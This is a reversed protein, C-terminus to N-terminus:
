EVIQIYNLNFDYERGRERHLQLSTGEWKFVTHPFTRRFWRVEEELAGFEWCVYNCSTINLKQLAQKRQALIRFLKQTFITSGQLSLSQLAPLSAVATISGESIHDCHHLQLVRLHPVQQLASLVDGTVSCSSLDLYTVSLPLTDLRLSEGGCATLQLHELNTQHYLFDGTVFPQHQLVLHTLKLRRLFFIGADTLAVPNNFSLDLYRVNTAQAVSSVGDDTLYNDSVDLYELQKMDAFFTVDRDCLACNSLVLKRLHLQTIPHYESLHFCSTLDLSVCRTFLPFWSTRSATCFQFSCETVPLRTLLELMQPQVPWTYFSLDLCTVNPLKALLQCHPASTFETGVLLKTVRPLQHYPQLIRCLWNLYVAHLLKFITCNTALHAGVMQYCLRSVFSFSRTDHQVLYSCIAPTHNRLVYDM